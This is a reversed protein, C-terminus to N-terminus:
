LPHPTRSPGSLHMEPAHKFLQRSLSILEKRFEDILTSIEQLIKDGNRWMGKWALFDFFTIAGFKFGYQEKKTVNICEFTNAIIIQKEWFPLTAITLSQIVSDIDSVEFDFYYDKIYDNLKVDSVEDSFVTLEGLFDTFFVPHKDDTYQSYVMACYLRANISSKKPNIRIYSQAVLEAFAEINNRLFSTLYFNDKENLGDDDESIRIRRLKSDGSITFTKLNQKHHCFM